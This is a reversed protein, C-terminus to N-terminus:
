YIREIRSGPYYYRLIEECQKGQRAMAQAGCQCMGVAHGFGRGFSFVWKDGIRVIKCATSKLIRGTPDLTLRLDEARLIDSKGTTGAVKVKLLRRWRGYESAEVATIATIDGLERLKPYRQHLKATVEDADFQAVPWFFYKPKAVYWCYACAVGVLPEFSDGFVNKSNETHGGCTSSYYAPFVGETQDERRCVLVKGTTRNVANWVQPSEAKIGAYVQHSEGSRLDWSRASGFRDKIYLCYTRATIAQAKLAEPEWYDPMERGVVGALYAELPVDNIADFCNGNPETAVRLEGRYRSGNLEFVYPEDPRIVLEDAEVPRGAFLLTGGAFTIEIQEAAKDAGLEPTRHDSGRAPITKFSSEIRVLCSRVNDLLLVRVRPGQAPDMGPTPSTTRRPKCGLSFVLLFFVAGTYHLKAARPGTPEPQEFRRETVASAMVRM